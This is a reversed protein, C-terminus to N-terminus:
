IQHAGQRMMIGRPFTRPPPFPRALSLTPGLDGMTVVLPITYQGPLNLSTLPFAHYIPHQCLHFKYPTDIMAPRYAAKCTDYMCLCLPLREVGFELFLFLFIISFLFRLWLFRRRCPRQCNDMEDVRGGLYITYIVRVWRNTGTGLGPKGGVTGGMWYLLTIDSINYRNRENMLFLGREEDWGM